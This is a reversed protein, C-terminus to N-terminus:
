HGVSGLDVEINRLVKEAAKQSIRGELAAAWLHLVQTGSNGGGTLDATLVVRNMRLWGGPVIVAVDDPQGEIQEGLEAVGHLVAASRNADVVLQRSASVLRLKRAVSAMGPEPRGFPPLRQGAVFRELVARAAAEDV